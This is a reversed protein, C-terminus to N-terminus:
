DLLVRIRALVVRHRLYRARHPTPDIMRPPDRMELGPYCGVRTREASPNMPQRTPLVGPRSAGRTCSGPNIQRWWRKWRCGGSGPPFRVWRHPRSAGCRRTPSRQWGARSRCKSSPGRPPWWNCPCNRIAVSWSATRGSRHIGPISPSTRPERLYSTSCTKPKLGLLPHGSAIISAEASRWM